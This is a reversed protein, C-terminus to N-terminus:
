AHEKIDAMLILLKIWYIEEDLIIDNKMPESICKKKWMKVDTIPIHRSISQM